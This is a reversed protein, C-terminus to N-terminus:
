TGGGIQKLFEEVDFPPGQRVVGVQMQKMPFTAAVEFVVDDLEGDHTWQALMEPMMKTMMALMSARFWVAEVDAGPSCVSEYVTSGISGSQSPNRAQFDIFLQWVKKLDGPNVAPVDGEQSGAWLDTPLEAPQPAALHIVAHGVYLVSVHSISEYGGSPPSVMVEKDLCKEDVGHLSKLLERLTM